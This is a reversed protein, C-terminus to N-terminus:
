QANPDEQMMGLKNGETDEFIAWWGIGPIAMKPMIIKGGNSQVMDVYADLDDVDMTNIDMTEPQRQSLGGDIGAGEGTRIMWYPMPGDWKEFKWGFTEEYFKTLGEPDDASIEFHTIRPM